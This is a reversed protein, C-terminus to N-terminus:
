LINVFFSTHWNEAVGAKIMTDYNNLVYIICM